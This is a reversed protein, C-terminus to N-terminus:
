SAPTRDRPAPTPAPRHVPQTTGSPKARLSEVSDPALESEAELPALLNASQALLDNTGRLRGALQERLATLREVQSTATAIRKDAEDTAERVRHRCEDTTAKRAADLDRHLEDRKTTIEQQFQQEIRQREREAKDDIDKRRQDAVTTMDTVKTRAEDMISKHATHIEAHQRDLDTLLKRYRERLATSAQEAASWTNDAAVRARSTIEAAQTKALDLARAAREAANPANAAAAATGIKDLRETLAANERRAQDLQNSVDALQSRAEDREAASRLADHELRQLYQKVQTRDFGHRVVAFGEPDRDQQSAM